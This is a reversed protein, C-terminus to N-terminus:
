CDDSYVLGGPAGENDIIICDSGDDYYTSHCNWNGDPDDGCVIVTTEPGESLFPTSSFSMFGLFSFCILLTKM